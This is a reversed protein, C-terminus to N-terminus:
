FVIRRIFRSIYWHKLRGFVMMKQLGRLRFSKMEFVVMWIGVMIIVGSFSSVQILSRIFDM